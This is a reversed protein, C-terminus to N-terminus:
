PTTVEGVPVYEKVVNNGRKETETERIDQAGLTFAELMQRQQRGAAPETGHDM